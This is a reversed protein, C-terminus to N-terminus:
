DALLEYTQGEKEYIVTNEKVEKVAKGLVKKLDM